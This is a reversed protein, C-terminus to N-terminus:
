LDNFGPWVAKGTLFPCNGNRIRNEITAMWEFDFHKGTAPDDYPLYWWVKVYRSCDNPTIGVNKSPHWEKLLHSYEETWHENKM